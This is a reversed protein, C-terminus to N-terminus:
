LLYGANKLYVKFDIKKITNDLYYLDLKVSSTNQFNM